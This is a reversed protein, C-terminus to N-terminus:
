PLKEFDSGTVNRISAVRPDYYVFGEDPGASSWEARLKGIRLTVDNGPLETLHAVNSDQRDSRYREIARDHGSVIRGTGRSRYRFRYEVHHIGIVVFQVAAQEGTATHVVFVDGTKFKLVQRDQTASSGIDAVYDGETAEAPTSSDGDLSKPRREGTEPATGAGLVVTVSDQHPQISDFSIESKPSVGLEHLTSVLVPLVRNQDAVLVDVLLWSDPDRGFPICRSSLTRGQNHPVLAQDLAATTRQSVSECSGMVPIGVYIVSYIPLAPSQGSSPASASAAAAAVSAVFWLGLGFTHSRSVGGKGKSLCSGVMRKAEAM